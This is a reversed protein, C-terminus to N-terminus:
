DTDCLGFVLGIYYSLVGDKRYNSTDFLIYLMYVGITILGSIMMITILSLSSM